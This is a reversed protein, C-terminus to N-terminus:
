NKVRSMQLLEEKFKRTRRITRLPEWVHIANYAKNWKMYLFTNQETVIVRGLEDREWLPFFTHAWNRKEESDLDKYSHHIYTCMASSWAYYEKLFQALLPMPLDPEFVVGRGWYTQATELRDKISQYFDALITRMDDHTKASAIATELHTPM